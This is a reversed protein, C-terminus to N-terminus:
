CEQRKTRTWGTTASVQWYTRQETEPHCRHRFTHVWGTATEKSGMYQLVEGNAHALVPGPFQKWAAVLEPDNHKIYAIHPFM